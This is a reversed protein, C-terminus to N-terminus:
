LLIVHDDDGESYFRKGRKLVVRTTHVNEGIIQFDVGGNVIM